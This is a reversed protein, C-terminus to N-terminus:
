SALLDKCFIFDFTNEILIETHQSSLFFIGQQMKWSNKQM